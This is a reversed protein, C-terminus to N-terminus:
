ETPLMKFMMHVFTSIKLYLLYLVFWENMAAM